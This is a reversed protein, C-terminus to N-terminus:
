ANDHLSRSAVFEVASLLFKVARESGILFVAREQRTELQREAKAVHVACVVSAPCGFCFGVRLCAFRCVLPLFHCGPLCLDSRLIWKERNETRPESGNEDRKRKTRKCKRRDRRSESNNRCGVSAIGAAIGGFPIKRKKAQCAALAIGSNHNIRETCM